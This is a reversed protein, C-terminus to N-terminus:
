RPSRSIGKLTRTRAMRAVPEAMWLGSCADPPKLQFHPTAGSEMITFKHRAAEDPSAQEEFDTQCADAPPAEKSGGHHESPSRVTSGFELDGNLVRDM